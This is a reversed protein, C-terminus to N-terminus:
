GNNKASRQLYIRKMGECFRVMEVEVGLNDISSFDYLM